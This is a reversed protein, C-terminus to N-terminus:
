SARGALSRFGAGREGVADLVNLLDRTSGALRDLRTVLLVDGPGLAAIAKAL